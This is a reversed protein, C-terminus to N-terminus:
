ACCLLSGGALPALTPCFPVQFTTQRMHTFHFAPKKCKIRKCFARLTVSCVCPSRLTALLLQRLFSISAVCCLGRLGYRGAPSSFNHATESNKAVAHLYPVFNSLFLLPVATLVSLPACFSHCVKFTTTAKHPIKLSGIISQRFRYQPMDKMKKAEGFFVFCFFLAKAQIYKKRVDFVVISKSFDKCPNLIEKRLNITYVRLCLINQFINLLCCLRNFKSRVTESTKYGNVVSLLPFHFSYWRVIVM